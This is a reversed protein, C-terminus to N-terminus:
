NYLNNVNAYDGSYMPPREEIDEEVHIKKIRQHLDQFSPRKEPYENWCEVMIDAIEKPCKQPITLRHGSNVADVTELNSMGQFPLQGYSFIEWLVVGFSWCDSQTSFKCFKLVEVPSWKVAFVANDKKYYNKDDSVLRSMGFDAVKISYKTQSGTTVLINRLALDRHVINQQSLYSMGGCTGEAM